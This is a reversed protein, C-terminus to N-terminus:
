TWFSSCNLTKNIFDKVSNIINKYETHTCKGSRASTEALTSTETLTNCCITLSQGKIRHCINAFENLDSKYYKELLPICTIMDERVMSIIEIMLDRDGCCVKLADNVNLITNM